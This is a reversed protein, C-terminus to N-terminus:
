FGFGMFENINLKIFFLKYPVYITENDIRLYKLYDLNHKKESLLIKKAIFYQQKLFKMDSESTINECILFKGIEINQMNNIDLFHKIYYALSNNNSTFINIGIEKLKSVILNESKEGIGNIHTKNIFMYVLSSIDIINEESLIKNIRSNFNIESVLKLPCNKIEEEIRKDEMKISLNYGDYIDIIRNCFLFIYDSNWSIYEKDIYNKIANLKINISEECESYSSEVIDDITQNNKYINKVICFIDYDLEVLQTYASIYNFAKESYYKSQSFLSKIWNIDLRNFDINNLTNNYINEIIKRIEFKERNEDSERIEQISANELLYTNKPMVIDENYDANSKNEKSLLLVQLFTKEKENDLSNIWSEFFNMADNSLDYCDNILRNLLISINSSKCETFIYKQTTKNQFVYELIQNVKQFKKEILATSAIKTSSDPEVAYKFIIELLEDDDLITECINYNKNNLFGGTLYRDESLLHKNKRLIYKWMEIATEADIESFESVTLRLVKRNNEWDDKFMEFSKYLIESKKSNDIM